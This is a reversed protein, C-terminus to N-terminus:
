CFCDALYDDHEVNCQGLAGKWECNYCTIKNLEWDDSYFHEAM